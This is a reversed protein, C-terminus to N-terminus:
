ASATAANSRATVCSGSTAGSGAAATAGSAAPRGCEARAVQAGRERVELGRHGGCGIGCLRAPQQRDRETGVITGVLRDLLQLM